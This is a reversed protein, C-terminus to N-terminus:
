KPTRSMPLLKIEKKTLASTPEDMILIKANLSIAKCIEIMQQMSVPLSGLLTDPSVDIDLEDMWEITKRRMEKNDLVGNKVIERGLFINEMISLHSCMNLEQHIIAIGLDSAIKTNINDIEQNFIKIKGSDKSYIGSLVKMLTSKGAGNEGILALVEGSKLNFSVDSLAKIGSFSKNINEMEVIYEM